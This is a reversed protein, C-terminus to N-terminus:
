YLCGKEFTTHISRLHRFANLVGWLLYRSPFISAIFPDSIGFPTSCSWCMSQPAIVLATFPDSIGFPTSCLMDDWQTPDTVDHISRLHRFANLVLQQSARERYKGSTFPDSIGFPTSCLCDRLATEGANPIFRDSISFPTSKPSAM